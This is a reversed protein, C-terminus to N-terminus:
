SPGGAVADDHASPRACTPARRHRRTSVSLRKSCSCLAQRHQLSSLTKQPQRAAPRLTQELHLKQSCRVLTAARQWPNASVCRSESGTAAGVPNHLAIRILQLKSNCCDASAQLSTNSTLM